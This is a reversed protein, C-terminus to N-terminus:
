HVLLTLPETEGEMPILKGDPLRAASGEPLPTVKCDLRKRLTESIFNGHAGSDVLIRVTIIKGNALRIKGQWIIPSLDPNTKDTLAAVLARSLKKIHIIEAETDLDRPNPPISLEPCTDL